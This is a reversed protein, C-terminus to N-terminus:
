CSPWARFCPVRMGEQRRTQVPLLAYGRLCRACSSPHTMAIASIKRFISPTVPSAVSAACAPSILTSEQDHPRCLLGPYLRGWCPAAESRDSSIVLATSRLEGASSCYQSPCLTTLLAVSVVRLAPPGPPGSSYTTISKLFTRIALTSILEWALSRM